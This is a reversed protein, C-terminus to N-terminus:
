AALERLAEELAGVEGQLQELLPPVDTLTGDRAIQEIALANRGALQAGFNGVLGKLSHAARGMADRDGSDLGVRLDNLLVPADELFFQAIERFLEEDGGLRQLAADFDFRRESV